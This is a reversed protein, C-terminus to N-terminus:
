GLGYELIDLFWHNDRFIPNSRTVRIPKKFIPGDFVFTHFEGREGAPDIDTKRALQYLEDALKSDLERGLWEQGFVESKASVIISKFGAAIFDALLRSTDMKWLPLVAQVGSEGCVRDIWAKHEELYIDGTILGTVGKLKLEKLATKFGAEYAEWTVGQQVIPLGMAQAQLAILKADLGHSASRGSDENFFNLLHTVKLGESIAKWCAFCSDKGGSWTAAYETM